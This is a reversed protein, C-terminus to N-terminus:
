YKIRYKFWLHKKLSERQKPWRPDNMDMFRKYYRMAGQVDGLREKVLGLYYIPLTENFNLAAKMINDHAKQYDGEKMYGIGLGLLAQTATPSVKLAHGYLSTTSQWVNNQQWTLVSLCLILAGGVIGAVLKRKGALRTILWAIILCFGVSVTYLYRDAAFFALQWALNSVPFWFAGIWILGFSVVPASKRCLVIVFLAALMGAISSLVWPSFFTEPIDFVYEVALNDPWFLRLGMFSLSKLVVLYYIDATMDGYHQMKVLPGKIEELFGATGGLYFWCAVGAILACAAIGSLVLRPRYKLLLRQEASCLFLEYAVIVVPLVAAVQKSYLAVAWFFLAAALWSGRWRWKESRMINLYAHLALLCFALCLSDKRHSISAVVEVQIPHVLFLLSALWAFLRGGNMKLVLLFVLIANLGHWFIQQIHWGAPNFGFLSHDLVFSLERVPRGPYKDALFNAFSKVDPNDIIVPFDDYTWANNFTNAYLLFALAMLILGPLFKKLM